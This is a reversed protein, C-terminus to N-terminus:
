AEQGVGDTVGGDGDQEGGGAQASLDLLVVLVSLIKEAQVLVLSPHYRCTVMIMSASGKRVTVRM